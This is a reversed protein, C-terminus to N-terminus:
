IFRRATAGAYATLAARALRGRGSPSRRAGSRLGARAGVPRVGVLFQPQIMDTVPYYGLTIKRSIAERDISAALARRVRVDTLPPHSTNLALGAVVATPVTLLASEKGASLSRRRRLLSTGTSSAPSFFSCTRRRIPCRADSGARAGRSTRALLASQGRLAARRRPALLSVPVARRRGAAGSNFAARILPAQAALVHEPLVFQPTFGYSFYTMVAPAWARKLHFVVTRADPAEARDILDYGEHTRVPNRPDLIARLTFIVDRSTM